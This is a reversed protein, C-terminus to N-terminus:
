KELISSVALVHYITLCLLFVTGLTQQLFMLNFNNELIEALRCHTANNFCPWIIESLVVLNNM